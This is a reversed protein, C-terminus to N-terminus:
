LTLGSLESCARLLGDQFGIDHAAPNPTLRTKRKFYEGTVLADGDGTALWVQTEAGEPLDDDRQPRRAEHPDLRPRSRQQVGRAV